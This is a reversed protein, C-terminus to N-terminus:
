HRFFDAYNHVARTSRLPRDTLISVDRTSHSSHRLAPAASSSSSSSSASRQATLRRESPYLPHEDYFNVGSSTGAGRRVRQLRRQVPGLASPIGTSIISGLSTNHAAVMRRESRPRFPISPTSTSSSSTSSSSSPVSPTKLFFSKNAKTALRNDSRQLHYQRILNPDEIDADDTWDPKTFHLWKVLYQMKYSGDSPDRLRRHNLLRDVYYFAGTDDSSSSSSTRDVPRSDVTPSASTADPLASTSTAALVPLPSASLADARSTHTTALVPFPGSLPLRAEVLPLAAALVPRVIDSTLKVKIMDRTVPRHYLGGVSDRLRYLKNPLVDSVSYPGDWAPTNKNRPVHPDRLYVVSGVPLTKDTLRTPAFEANALDRIRQARDAISPFILDKLRVEREAWLQRDSDSITDINFNSYSQFENLARNFFLAFPSANTVNRIKDNMALQVIPLAESWQSPDSTIMKRLTMSAIHGHKEVLGASRPNYAPITRHLIGFKEILATVTANAFENDSQIARPPGLDGIVGFLATAVTASEKNPLARLITYSTFADTLVLIYKMGHKDEHMSTVLDMQIIDWPLAAAPSRIPHFIRKSANWQQCIHCDSCISRVLKSMGPWCWGERALKAHIARTGFHGLSHADVVLRRAEDETAPSRLRREAPLQLTPEQDASVMKNPDLSSPPTSSIVATVSGFRTYIQGTPLQMSNGLDLHKDIDPQPRPALVTHTSSRHPVSSTQSYVTPILPTRLADSATALGYVNKALTTADSPASHFGTHAFLPATPTEASPQVLNKRLAASATAFGNFVNPAVITAETPASHSGSNAYFPATPTM